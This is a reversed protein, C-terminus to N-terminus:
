HTVDRRRGRTRLVLGISVIALGFALPVWLALGTFPLEASKVQPAPSAAETGAAGNTGTAPKAASPTPKAASPPTFPAYQAHAASTKVARAHQKTPTKAAHSASSSAYGIGGFSALAVVILGSLALAGGVRALPSRAPGSSRVEDVLAQTFEARPASRGTRLETELDFKKHKM